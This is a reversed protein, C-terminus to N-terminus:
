TAHKCHICRFPRCEQAPPTQLRVELTSFTEGELPRGNRYWQYRFGLSRRLRKHTRERKGGKLAHGHEHPPGVHTLKIKKNIFVSNHKHVAMVM